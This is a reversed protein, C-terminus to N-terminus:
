EESYNLKFFGTGAELEEAPIVVTSGTLNTQITDWRTLTASFQLVVPEEVPEWHLTVDGDAGMELTQTFITPAMQLIYLRAEGGADWALLLSGSRNTYAANEAVHYTIRGDSNGSTTTLTIWEEGGDVSVTWDTNAIVDLSQNTHVTHTFVAEEEAISLFAPAAAQVVRVTQIIGASSRVWIDAQRATAARNSQATISFTGSYTGSDPTMDVWDSVSFVDWETNASVTVTHGSSGIYPSSFAAPSVTLFPDAGEQTVTYVMSPLSSDTNTVTITAVRENTATNEAVSYLVNASDRGVTYVNITLWSSDSLTAWAVNASVAFVNGASAEAGITTSTMPLTMFAPGAAQTITFAAPATASDTSSVTIQTSRNNTTINNAVAYSVSANDRGSANGTVSVWYTNSRAQWAVNAEVDFTAAATGNSTISTSSVPLRIFPPAAQQNITFVQAPLSADTSTITISGTRSNTTTHAAVHYGVTANDRGTAGSVITIFDGGSTVSAQWAVNARVSISSVETGDAALQASSTQLTM